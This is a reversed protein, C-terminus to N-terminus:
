KTKEKNLTLGLRIGNKELLVSRENISVVKYGAHSEGLALVRGSINVLSHLGDFVVARLEPQWAPLADAVPAEGPSLAAPKPLVPQAFPDRRVTQAYAGVEALMVGIGLALLIMVSACASRPKM